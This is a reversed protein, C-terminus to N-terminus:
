LLKIKCVYSIYFSSIFILVSLLALCFNQKIELDFYDLTFTATGTKTIKKPILFKTLTPNTSSQLGSLISYLFASILALIIAVAMYLKLEINLTNSKNFLVGGFADGTLTVCVLLLQGDRFFNFKGSEKLLVKRFIDIGFPLMSLFVNFLFWNLLDENKLITQIM